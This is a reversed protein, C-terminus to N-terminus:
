PLKPLESSGDQARANSTRAQLATVVAPLVSVLVIGLTILSLREKVFPLGGFFVGAYVLAGVWVAAGLLNFAAFRKYPMKGAGALFPALTRVFPVFRALAITAAGYRAFYRNTADLHSQRLWRGGLKRMVFPAAYRGVSFNVADGLVAAAILVAVALRVNLGATAAITGTLFLLSDGPLFPAVVLGTEALIVAAILWLVHPGYLSVWHALTTDLSLVLTALESLV